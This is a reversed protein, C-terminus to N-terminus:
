RHAPPPKAWTEPIKLFMRDIFSRKETICSYIRSSTAYKEAESAKTSSVIDLEAPTSCEGLHQAFRFAAYYRMAYFATVGIVIFIALRAITRLM